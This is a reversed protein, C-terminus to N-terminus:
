SRAKKPKVGVNRTPKHKTAAKRVKSGRLKPAPRVEQTPTVIQDSAHCDRGDAACLEGSLTCSVRTGDFSVNSTKENGITDTALLRSDQRAIVKGKVWDYEICGLQRREGHHTRSVYAIRSGNVAVASRADLAPILRPQVDGNRTDVVEWGGANARLEHSADLATGEGAEIAHAALPFTAMMLVAIRWAIRPM